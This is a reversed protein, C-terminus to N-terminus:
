MYCKAIQPYSFLNCLTDVISRQMQSNALHRLTETIRPKSHDKYALTTTSLDPCSPLERSQTLLGAKM